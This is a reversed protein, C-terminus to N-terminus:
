SQRVGIASKSIPQLMKLVAKVNANALMRETEPRIEDDSFGTDRAHALAVAEQLNGHTQEVALSIARKWFASLRKWEPTGSIATLNMGIREDSIDPLQSPQQHFQPM